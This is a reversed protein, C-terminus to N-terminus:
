VNKIAMDSLLKEKANSGTITVPRKAIKRM